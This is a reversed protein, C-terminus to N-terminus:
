MRLVLIKSNGCYLQKPGSNLIGSPVYYTGRVRCFGSYNAVTIKLLKFVTFSLEEEDNTIRNLKSIIFNNLAVNQDTANNATNTARLQMAKNITQLASSTEQIVSDPGELRKRKQTPMAIGAYSSGASSSRSTTQVESEDEVHELTGEDTVIYEQTMDIQEELNNDFVDSGATLSDFSPRVKIHDLLFNMKTYYWLNPTYVLDIPDTEISWVMVGGLNNSKSYNTKIAVSIENDYSIWQNDKYMYPVKQVNDWKQTWSQTKLLEYIENYGLMGVESTYPGPTGGGTTPSGVTNQTNYKLTYSRGYIPIGLILKSRLAGKLIWYSICSSVTLPDNVQSSYLPANAGTIQDWSGHLDYTMVNIFDVYSSISLVDYSLDVMSATAGVALTLLYNTGIAQRFEKLLTAFNAKDFSMGGRQSPYEWDIDFGNFKHTNMFQIASNIFNQRLAPQSAILSYKASGENWGGVAILTKLNPNKLKLNNFKEYGKLGIDSWSDLIKITGNEHVGVFAYILHTCLNPNIKDVGYQGAGPRYVAWSGYYCVLKKQAYIVSITNLLLVFVFAELLKNNM